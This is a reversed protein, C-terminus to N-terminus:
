PPPAPTFSFQKVVIEVERGDQPPKGRYLWLNLHLPTAQRPIRAAADAPQYTWHAFEGADDGRLGRLSQFNVRGGDRVFRHMTDLSGPPVAFTQSAPPLGAREPFVTYNGPPSAPNGWRSFEIDIENTGDLGIEPTPYDFLGLVVNPDLRDLAGMVQFQYRGAGFRRRTSVEVCRWGDKQRTIKLHLRGKADVWAGGPDWRNPGPGGAGAPRVEWDYGSFRLIRAGPQRGATGPPAGAVAPFPLMAVSLLRAATVGLSLPPRKHESRPRCSTKM